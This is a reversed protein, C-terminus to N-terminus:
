EGRIIGVGSSAPHLPRANADLAAAHVRGGSSSDMAV